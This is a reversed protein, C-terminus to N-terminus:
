RSRYDGDEEVNKDGLVIFYQHRVGSGEGRVVYWACIYIHIYIHKVIYTYTYLSLFM